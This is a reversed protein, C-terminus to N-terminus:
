MLPVYVVNVQIATASVVCFIRYKQNGGGGGGGCKLSINESDPIFIFHKDVIVM